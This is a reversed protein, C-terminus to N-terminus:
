VLVAEREVEARVRPKLSDDMALAQVAAEPGGQAAPRGGVTVNCWSRCVVGRQEDLGALRHGDDRGPMAVFVRGLRQVGVAM